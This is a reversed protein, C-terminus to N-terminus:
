RSILVVLLVGAILAYFTAKLPEEVIRDRTDAATTQATASGQFLAWAGGSLLLGLLLVAPGAYRSRRRSSLRGSIRHALGSESRGPRPTRRLKQTLRM